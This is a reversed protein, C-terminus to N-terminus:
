LALSVVAFLKARALNEQVADILVAGVRAKIDFQDISHTGCDSDRHYGWATGSTSLM